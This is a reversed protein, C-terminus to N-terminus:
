EYLNRRRTNWIKKMMNDYKMHCKRCLSIWDDTDRKYKHSKNAWQVHSTSGCDKCVEPKGIKRRVWAHLGVYGVDKKWNHHKEGLLREDGPKFATKPIIGTKIGKNWPTRSCRFCTCGVKHPIYNGKVFPM